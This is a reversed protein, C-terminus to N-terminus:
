PLKLRKAGRTWIGNNSNVADTNRFRAFEEPRPAGILALSCSLNIEQAKSVSHENSQLNRIPEIRRM